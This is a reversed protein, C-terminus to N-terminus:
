SDGLGCDIGLKTPNDQMFPLKSQQHSDDTSKLQARIRRFEDATEQPGLDSFLQLLAAIVPSDILTTAQEIEQLGTIACHRAFPARSM